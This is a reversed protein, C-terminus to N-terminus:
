PLQSPTRRRTPWTRHSAHANPSQASSMATLVLTQWLVKHSGRVEVERAAIKTLVAGTNFEAYRLPSRSPAAARMTLLLWDAAAHLILRFQQSQSAAHHAISARRTSKQLTLHNAATGRADTSRPMASADRRM